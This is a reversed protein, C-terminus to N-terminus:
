LIDVGGVRRLGVEILGLFALYEPTTVLLWEIWAREFDPELKHPWRARAADELQRKRPGTLLEEIKVESLHRRCYHLTTMLRLSGASLALGAIRAALRPPLPRRNPIKPPVILRPAREPAIPCLGMAGDCRMQAFRAPVYECAEGREIERALTHRRQPTSM